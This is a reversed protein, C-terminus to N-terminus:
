NGDEFNGIELLNGVNCNGVLIYSEDEQSRLILPSRVTPM